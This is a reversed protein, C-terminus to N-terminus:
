EYFTESQSQCIKNKKPALRDLTNIVLNKMIRCDATGESRKTMGETIENQFAENSFNKYNHYMIKTPKSKKCYAKLVTLTMKHFDSLNSELIKSKQFCMKRNTLILDICSANELNKFRTQEKILNDLNYLDCFEHMDKEKTESNFDGMILFNEYKAFNYNLRKKTFDLFYSIM